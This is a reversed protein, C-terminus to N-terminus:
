FARPRGIMGPTAHPKFLTGRRKMEPLLTRGFDSLGL